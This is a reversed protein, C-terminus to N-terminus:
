YHVGRLSKKFARQKRNPVARKPPSQSTSPAITPAGFREPLDEVTLPVTSALPANSTWRERSLLATLSQRRSDTGRARRSYYKFAWEFQLAQQWTQFGCVVCQFKWPGHGRTRAAGGVIEGNHQRIRRTPDTTAGIYARNGSQIWYVFYASM